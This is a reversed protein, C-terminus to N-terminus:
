RIDVIRVNIGNKALANCAMLGAPGAGVVLVDVHSEKGAASSSTNIGMYNLSRLLDKLQSNSSLPIQRIFVSSRSPSKPIFQFPIIM